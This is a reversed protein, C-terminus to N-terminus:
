KNKFTYDDTFLLLILLLWAGTFGAVLIITIDVLVTGWNIKKM